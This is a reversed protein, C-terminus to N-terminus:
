NQVIKKSNGDPNGQHFVIERSNENIVEPFFCAILGLAKKTNKKNPTLLSQYSFANCNVLNCYEKTSLLQQNDPIKRLGFGANNCLYMVEIKDSRVLYCCEAEKPCVEITFKEDSNTYSLEYLQDGVRTITYDQLFTNSNGNLVNKSSVSMTIMMLITSIIVIRKM